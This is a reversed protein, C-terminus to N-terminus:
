KDRRIPRVIGYQELSVHPECRFCYPNGKVITIRYESLCITCKM